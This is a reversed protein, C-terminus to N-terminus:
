RYRVAAEKTRTRAPMVGRASSVWASSLKGSVPAPSTTAPDYTGRVDAAGLRAAHPQKMGVRLEIMTDRM